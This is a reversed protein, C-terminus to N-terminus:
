TLRILMLHKNYRKKNNKNRAICYSKDTMLLIITHHSRDLGCVKIQFGTCDLKVTMFDKLILKISMNSFWGILVKYGIFVANQNSM